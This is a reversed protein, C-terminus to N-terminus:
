ASLGSTAPPSQVFLPGQKTQLTLSNLNDPYERFGLRGKPTQTVVLLQSNARSWAGRGRGRREIFRHCIQSKLM